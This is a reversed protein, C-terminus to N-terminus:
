ALASASGSTSLTYGPKTRNGVVGAVAGIARQVDCARARVRAGVPRERDCRNVVIAREAAVVVQSDDVRALAVRACRTRGAGRACCTGRSRCAGVGAEVVGPCGGRGAIGARALHKGIVGRQAAGRGDVDALGAAVRFGEARDDRGPVVAGVRRVATM